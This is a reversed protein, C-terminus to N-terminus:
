RLPLTGTPAGNVNNRNIANNGFSLITGGGLARLGTTNHAVTSNELLLSASAGNAQLGVPNRMAQTDDVAVEAIPGSTKVVNLGVTGNGDLHVGSLSGRVLAAAGPRVVIGGGANNSITSNRVFLDVNSNPTFDIGQEEFGVISTNEVHVAAGGGMVRIGDTGPTAAGSIGLFGQVNLNRLMVVGNPGEGESLNITIAVVGGLGLVITNPAGCDITVPKDVFIAGDSHNELCRIEGGAEVKTLAFNISACATSLTACNGTNSGTFASVYTVPIQARAASAAIALGSLAAVISISFRFRTM